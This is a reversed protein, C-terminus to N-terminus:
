KSDVVQVTPFMYGSTDFAFSGQVWRVKVKTGATLSKGSMAVGKRRPEAPDLLVVQYLDGAAPTSTVVTWVVNTVFTTELADVRSLNEGAVAKAEFDVMRKELDLRGEESSCGGCLGVMMIAILVIIKM